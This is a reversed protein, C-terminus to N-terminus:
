FCFASVPRLVCVGASFRRNILSVCHGCFYQPLTCWVLVIKCAVEWFTLPSFPFYKYLKIAGGRLRPPLATHVEGISGVPLKLPYEQNVVGGGWSLILGNDTSFSDVFFAPMTSNTSETSKPEETKSTCTRTRNGAGFLFPVEKLPAKKNSITQANM